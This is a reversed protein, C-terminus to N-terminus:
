LRDKLVQPDRKTHYCALILINSGFVAYYVAYPFKRLLVRRAPGLVQAYANPNQRITAVARRLTAMFEKDVGPSAQRYWRVAQRVEAAAEDLFRVTYGPSSV